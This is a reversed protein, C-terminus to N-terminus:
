RADRFGGPALWNRPDAKATDSPQRSADQTTPANPQTYIEWDHTGTPRGATGGRIAAGVNAPNSSHLQSGPHPDVPTTINFNQDRTNLFTGNMLDYEEYYTPGGPGNSSNGPSGDPNAPWRRFLIAAPFPNRAENGCSEPSNCKNYGGGGERVKGYPDKVADHHITKSLMIGPRGQSDTLANRNEDTTKYIEYVSHSDSKGNEKFTDKSREVKNDTVVKLYSGKYVGDVYKDWSRMRINPDTSTRFQVNREEIAHGTPDKYTIPNGKVYSFRNWGQTDFEGDIITDASVFRAISADYHRANYFYFGSEK